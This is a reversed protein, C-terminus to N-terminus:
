LICNINQVLSWYITSNRGWGHYCLRLALPCFHMHSGESICRVVEVCFKEERRCLKWVQLHPPSPKWPLFALLQYKPTVIRISWEEWPLSLAQQAPLPSLVHQKLLVMAVSCLSTPLLLGSVWPHARPFGHCVWIPLLGQAWDRPFSM